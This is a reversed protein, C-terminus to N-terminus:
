TNLYSNLANLCDSLVSHATMTVNDQTTVYDTFHGQAIVDDSIANKIQIIGTQYNTKISFQNTLTRYTQKNIGLIGSGNNYIVVM